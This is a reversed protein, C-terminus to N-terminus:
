RRASHSEVRWVDGETQRSIGIFSRGTVTRHAPKLALLPPVIGARCANLRDVKTKITSDRLGKVPARM